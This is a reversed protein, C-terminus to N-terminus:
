RMDLHRFRIGRGQDKKDATATSAQTGDDKLDNALGELDLLDEWRQENRTHGDLLLIACSDGPYRFDVQAEQPDTGDLPDIGNVDVPDITECVVSDILYAGTEPRVIQVNTLFTEGPEALDAKGADGRKSSNPAADYRHNTLARKAAPRSDFFNNAAFLGPESLFVARSGFKNGDIDTDQSITGTFQRRLPLAARFPGREFGPVREYLTGDPSDVRYDYAGATDDGVVPGFGADTWLIDAWTGRYQDGRPPSAVSRVKGKVTATTRDFLSPVIHDRNSASYNQMLSFTQRMNSTSKALAANGRVIGLAPLLIAVLIGIVGLTVLLEIITFGRRTHM